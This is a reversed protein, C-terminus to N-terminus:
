SPRLQKRVQVPTHCVRKQGGSHQLDCNSLCVKQAIPLDCCPVQRAGLVMGRCESTVDEWDDATWGVRQLPLAMM